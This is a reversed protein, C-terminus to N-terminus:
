TSRSPRRALPSCVGDMVRPNAFGPVLHLMLAATAALLLAGATGRGWAPLSPARAARCLAAYGLLAAVGVPGAIGEVLAAALAAAFLLVWARPRHTGAAADRGGDPLWLAALAATLLAFTL